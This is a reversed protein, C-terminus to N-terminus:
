FWKKMRAEINFTKMGEEPLKKSKTPDRTKEFDQYLEREIEDLGKLFKRAVIQKIIPLEVVFASIRKKLATKWPILEKNKPRFIAERNLRGLLWLLLFAYILCFAPFDVYDIYHNFAAESSRIACDM